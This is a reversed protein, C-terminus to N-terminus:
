VLYLSHVGWRTKRCAATFVNFIYKRQASPGRVSLRNKLNELIRSSQLIHMSAVNLGRVAQNTTPAIFNLNFWQTWASVMYIPQNGALWMTLSNLVKLHIEKEYIPFLYSKSFHNRM